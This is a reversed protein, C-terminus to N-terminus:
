KQGNNRAGFRNLLKDLGILEFGELGVALLVLGYVLAGAAIAAGTQLAVKYFRDLPTLDGGVIIKALQIAVIMAATALLIKGIWVWLGLGLVGPMKATLLLYLALANVASSLTFAIGLGVVGFSQTLPFAIIIALIVSAISVYMPTKTDHLAYYARALLPILGSFVLSFSFSGLIAATTITQDWNFYGSGLVLRVIQIRLMLIGASAPILFVCITAIAKKLHGSFWDMQGAAAWVALSPFLALAVSNGFVVTPMTQINDALAYMAVAGGGLGSALATFVILLIQNTGLAISRPVLLRVVKKLYIDAFNFTLKFKWGLRLLSPIQVLMHLFSGIVVAWGVAYIGYRNSFGITGIIIAINYILPALAAAVFHKFSNLVASALYSIAFFIPSLLLMRALNITLQQKALDFNPVVLPMIWPLALWLIIVLGLIFILGVGTLNAVLRWAERKKQRGILDTFIPIFAASVAGLILVNFLLDPIRFAAFYTDLTSTLIKQALYHDRIVGLINSLTLTVVLIWTAGKLSNQGRFRNLWVNM